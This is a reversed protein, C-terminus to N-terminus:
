DAEYASHAAWHPCCHQGCLFTVLVGSLDLVWFAEFGCGAGRMGFLELAGVSGKRSGLREM